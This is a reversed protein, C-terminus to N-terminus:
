GAWSHVGRRGRHGVEARSRGERLLRQQGLGVQSRGLQRGEGGDGAHEVRHGPAPGVQAEHGDLVPDLPGDAGGDVAQDVVDVQVNLALDHHVDVEVEHGTRAGPEGVDARHGRIGVGQGLALLVQGPLQGPGLLTRGVRGRVRGPHQALGAAGALAGDRRPEGGLAVAELDQGLVDLVVRLVLGPEDEHGPRRHRRGRPVVLRADHAELPGVVGAAQM